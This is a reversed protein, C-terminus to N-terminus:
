SPPAYAVGFSVLVLDARTRRVLAVVAGVVALLAIPGVTEWLRLAFALPAAPDHEFGLWGDRALSQVRRFDGWADGAHLVVFPSTLAFAVVALAAARGIRRWAGWGAVALPVLLIAGPYKASAALGAAVGAWELRGSVLLALCVTVGLTLLVDTVAMRSYAVHTTAVAVVVATALGSLTGVAVRGLWWAAASASSAWPSPSSGRRETRHSTSGLSRRRSSSSSFARTTTGAPISVM